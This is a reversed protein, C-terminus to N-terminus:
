TSSTTSWVPFPPRLPWHDCSGPKVNGATTRRDIVV